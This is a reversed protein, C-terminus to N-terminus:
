GAIVPWLFYALLAVTGLLISLAYTRAYGTQSLRLGGALWRAAQGAGNVLGDIGQRDLVDSAFNAFGVFTDRIVREHFFNHWLNWDITYGLFDALRNFVPIVGKMYLTDLPLVAMWWIPTRQLPDPDTASSPRKGYVVFFALALAGLALVTSVGAVMPSLVLPTHPLHILGEESLHFAGISHELWGELALWIGGAHHGNAEAIGESLFPLNLLGGLTALGALIMLPVTMTPPSEHAHDAAGHRSEDFFVMKLQRGMYFATFVAAVTLATYVIVNHENGHALIEDKSWFGAFPFIGALALAGVMYTRFTWPMKHRLGGMTRM